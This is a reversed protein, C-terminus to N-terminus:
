TNPFHFRILLEEEKRWRVWGKGVPRHNEDSLVLQLWSDTVKLPTLYKFSLHVPDALPSPYIKPNPSEDPLEINPLTLIFEPWFLLEGSYKNFYATQGTKSNVEVEVFDRGVSEVKFYFIGFSLNMAAPWLWPPASILTFDGFQDRGLALSDAPSHERISKEPTINQYFFLTPHQYFNPIFYGLGTAEFKTRIPFFFEENSFTHVMGITKSHDAPPSQQYEQNEKAEKRQLYRYHTIGYALLILAFLIINAYIIYKHPIFGAIFFSALFAVGGFLIGYGLVIAGGALGQGKGADILAAFYLGLFFFGVLMLLYFALRAPKFFNKM